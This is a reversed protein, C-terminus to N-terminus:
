FGFSVGGGLSFDTAADTVGLDGHFDFEFFGLNFGAGTNLNVPQGEADNTYGGYIEAFISIMDNLVSVVAAGYDWSGEPEDGKPYSEERPLEPYTYGINGHIGLLGGLLTKSIVAHGHIDTKDSGIGKDPNGTPLAVEL